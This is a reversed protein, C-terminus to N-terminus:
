SNRAGEARAVATMWDHAYAALTDAEPHAPHAVLAPAVTAARDPPLALLAAGSSGRAGDAAVLVPRAVTAALMDLYLRNRAFPGEVIVPGYAGILGLCEATVLALYFALAAGKEGPTLHPDAWGGKRGLHPGATPEVAPILFARRRLVAAVDAPTPPTTEGAMLDHERGGMFRASPTPRGFADVNALTDRAPDLTVSHGGLASGVAMCIVWTGTSVVAFPAARSVLHPLLAANSDHIGCHVPTGPRLGTTRAVEPLVDGLVDGPRALPAMRGALGLRAPLASFGGAWPAWLDTHAGLSSPECRWVGSLHGAWFQPYTVVQAVRDALGAQTALLWHLQAGVNLGLPLRPSGTDAFPPRLRDYEAAMADPGPHEYDLMPCALGGDRDLLVISAGHATVVVADVPHAANLDALAQLIFDWLGAIDYHPYPPAPRVRNPMTRVDLERLDAGDVVAVKANTKGIDIVAILTM